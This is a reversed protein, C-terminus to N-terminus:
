FKSLSGDDRLEDPLNQMWASGESGGPQDGLLGGSSNAAAVPETIEEESM